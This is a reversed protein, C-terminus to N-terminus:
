MTRWQHRQQLTQGPWSCITTGMCTKLSSRLCAAVMGADTRAHAHTTPVSLVQEPSCQPTRHTYSAYTDKPSDPIILYLLREASLRRKAPTQSPGAQERIQWSLLHCVPQYFHSLPQQRALLHKQLSVPIHSPHALHHIQFVTRMVLGTHHRTIHAPPAFPSIDRTLSVGHLPKFM